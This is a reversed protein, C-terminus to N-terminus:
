PNVEPRFRFWAWFAVSALGFAAFLALMRGAESATIRDARSSLLVHVFVFAAVLYAAAWRLRGWRWLAEGDLFRLPVLAFVLGEVGVVAVAALVSDALDAALTGDPGGLARWAAWALLSVALLSVSGALVAQGAARPTLARAALVAYGAILGYVYAPEFGAVRSLVALAAAIVLAFPLVRLAARGAGQRRCWLEVPVEFALLTVPIAVLLGAATLLAARDLGQGPDAFSTLVAALVTFAALQAAAPLRPLRPRPLRAFARRIRPANEEVTQNFLEAPFGVLLVLLAALALSRVLDGAGTDLQQPLAAPLWARPRVPPAAARVQAVAAPPSATAPAATPTAPPTTTGAPTAAPTATAPTRTLAPSPLGSPASPVTVPGLTTFPATALPQETRPCRAGVVHPGAGDPVTFAKTFRGDPATTRALVRDGDWTLEVITGECSGFGSGTATVEDGARGTTPALDLAATEPAPANVEFSREALVPGSPGSAYWCRAAVVHKGPSADSPVTVAAAFAGYSNRDTDRVQSVGDWLVEVFTDGTDPEVCEAFGSGEVTVATGPPASSPAVTLVHDTGRAPALALLASALVAPAVLRRAPRLVRDRAM